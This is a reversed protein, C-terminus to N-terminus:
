QFLASLDGNCEELGDTILIIINRCDSCQPFDTACKELSYAIPTTGRPNITKLKYKITEHNNPGFPVELKTDDCDQPPYNKYTRLMQTRLELNPM